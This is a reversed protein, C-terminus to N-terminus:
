KIGKYMKGFGFASIFLMNKLQQSVPDLPGEWVDYLIALEESKGEVSSWIIHDQKQFSLLSIDYFM